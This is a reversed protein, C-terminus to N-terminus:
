ITNPSRNKAMSNIVDYYKQEEKQEKLVETIPDSIIKPKIINKRKSIRVLDTNEAYDSKDSQNKIKSKEFEDLKETIVNSLKVKSKLTKEYENKVDSDNYLDVYEGINELKKLNNKFFKIDENWNKLTANLAYIRFEQLM